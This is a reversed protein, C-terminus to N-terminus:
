EVRLQFDSLVTQAARFGCMGHVGGGPPTSSSCLYLKRRKLRYPAPSFTPRAFMHWLDCAGGTIDGGDLNANSIALDSPRSVHRDLVIRRFGPAFREIQDEIASTMDITCGRPMHCYAWAIHKGAPARSPDFLTPQALLVFPREPVRGHAVEKEAEAIEELSNGLHVTAAQHCQAATWPIPGDLAYDVKFISPGHPFKQLRNGLSSSLNNGALRAAQWVSTDLLTVDTESSMDEPATVQQGTEVVGGLSRLHAALADSLRQAGGRPLPWGVAHGFLALMLAYAASAPADLDLFSHAALGAFLARAPKTQFSSLALGRASRLALLGFRAMQMPHRPWHLLPRLFEDALVEWQEVLPKMLSGYAKEDLGLGAATEEVSRCLVAATGDVFPHALPYPSHIWELGLSPLPLTRFFPSGIALPYIASCRDHAFGPLTLEASRVGGGITPRAELVRVAWGTQALAIAAALGNPGSGVVSANM